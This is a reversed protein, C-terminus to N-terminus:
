EDGLMDNSLSTFHTLCAKSDFIAQRRGRRILPPSTETDSEDSTCSYVGYSGKRRYM